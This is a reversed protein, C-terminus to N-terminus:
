SLIVRRRFPIQVGVEIILQSVNINHIDETYGTEIVEQSLRVDHIDETYGTEEDDFQFAEIEVRQILTHAEDSTKFEVYYSKKVGYSEHPHEASDPLKTFTAM